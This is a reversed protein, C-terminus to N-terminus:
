ETKLLGWTITLKDHSDVASPVGRSIHENIENETLARTYMALDDMTFNSFEIIQDGALSRACMLLPAETVEAVTITDEAVLEGDVYLKRRDEDEDQVAAIHYWKGYELTPGKTKVNQPGLYYIAGDSDMFILYPIDVNDYGKGALHRWSGPGDVLLWSEITFSGTLNLREDHEVEVYGDIGNCSIANGFQGEVWEFGGECVGVFGNGSIDQAKDGSNEDFPFHLLLSDDQGETANIFLIIFLFALALSLLKM